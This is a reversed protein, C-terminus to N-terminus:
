LRSVWVPTRSELARFVDAVYFKCSAHSFYDVNTGVVPGLDLVGHKWEDGILDFLAKLALSPYEVKERQRAPLPSSLM